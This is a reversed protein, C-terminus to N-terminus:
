YKQEIIFNPIVTDRITLFYMKPYVAAKTRIEFNVIQM